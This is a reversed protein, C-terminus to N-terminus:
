NIVYMVFNQLSRFPIVESNTYSPAQDGKLILNKGLVKWGMTQNMIIYVIIICILGNDIMIIYIYYDTDAYTHGKEPISQMPIAIFGARPM